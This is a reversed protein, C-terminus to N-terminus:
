RRHLYREQVWGGSELEVWILGEFQRFRGTLNVDAQFPLIKLVRGQTTPETRVNLGDTANVTRHLVPTPTPSARDTVKAISSHTKSPIVTPLPGVDITTPTSYAAPKPISAPDSVALPGPGSMLFRLIVIGVIPISLSGLVGLTITIPGNPKIRNPHNM